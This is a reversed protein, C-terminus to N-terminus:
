INKVCRPLRSHRRKYDILLHEEVAAPRVTEAWRIFLNTTDFEERIRRGTSHPTKGKILGEKVRRRLNSARGIHLIEGGSTKVMYVGPSDPPSVGGLRAHREIKHWPLWDSWYLQIEPIKIVQLEAM